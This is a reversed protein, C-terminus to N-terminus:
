SESPTKYKLKFPSTAPKTIIPTPIAGIQGHLFFILFGTKSPQHLFVLFVRGTALQSASHLMVGPKQCSELIHNRINLKTQTQLNM